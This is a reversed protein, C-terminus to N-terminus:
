RDRPTGPWLTFGGLAVNDASQSGKKKKKKKEGVGFGGKNVNELEANIM